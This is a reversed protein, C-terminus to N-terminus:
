LYKPPHVDWIAVREGGAIDAQTVPKCHQERAIFAAPADVADVLVEVCDVVITSEPWSPTTTIGGDREIRDFVDERSISEIKCQSTPTVPSGAKTRSEVACTWTARLGQNDISIGSLVNSARGAGGSSTLRACRQGM